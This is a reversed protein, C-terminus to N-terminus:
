STVRPVARVAAVLPVPPRGMLIRAKDHLLLQGRYFREILKPNLSYFREFIRFRESPKAGRFMMRNLLCLYRWERTQQRRYHVLMALFSESTLPWLECAREALRVSDPLSYGTVPHFFGGAMGIAPLPAETIVAPLPNLPIPLAGKETSLINQIKWGKSHAYATIGLVFENEDLNPSESYRTDEILLEQDSWPLVYIFRYGDLQEVTADMLIPNVIGHPMSTKVHLGVFKQYGCPGLHNRQGRGDVICAATFSTGDELNVSDDDVHIVKSNFRLDGKLMSRLYTELRAPQIANYGSSITKSPIRPFRVEHSAWTKGILPSLLSKQSPTLDSDHFCWTRTTSVQAESELMLIKLKPRARQLFAALIANALGAGVLIIDYDRLFTNARAVKHM